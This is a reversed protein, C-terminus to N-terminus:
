ELMEQLKQRRKEQAASWLPPCEAVIAAAQKLARAFAMCTSRGCEGCNSGPLLRYLELLGPPPKRPTFDPVLEERRRWVDNVIRAAKVIATRAEENDKVPAASIEWSRFAYKRGADQWILAKAGPFLRADPLAANLYPLLEGIDVHLHAKANWIEAGPHCAPRVLEMEWSCILDTASADDCDPNKMAVEEGYGGNSTEQNNNLVLRSLFLWLM